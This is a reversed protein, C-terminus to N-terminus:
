LSKELELAKKLAVISVELQTDDPERTTLRQLWLGPKVIARMIATDQHKASWKLFEYSLGAILPLLAIRVAFNTWFGDLRPFATYALISILFVILIFSTGCRPHFRSQKRSNEVTLPENAEYNFITKHEAGHYEFVRKIGPLFSITAIYVIFLSIKLVGDILNFLVYNQDVAAFNNSIFTTTWFPIFKFIFISLGLAFVISGAFLLTDFLKEKAPRNKALEKEAAIVDSAKLLTDPQVHKPMKIGQKKAAKRKKDFEEEDEIQEQAAFNLAKTGVIIMEFMNVVGRLLPTKSLNWRQVASVFPKEQLKISGDMKRVAVTIHRPARM